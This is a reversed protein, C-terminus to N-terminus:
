ETGKLGHHSAWAIMKARSGHCSAPANSRFWLVWEVIMRRNNNDAHHVAQRLDNAIIGQLFDGPLLGDEVYRKVGGGMYDGNPCLEYDIENTNM